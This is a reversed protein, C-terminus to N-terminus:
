HALEEMIDTSPSSGAPASGPGREIVPRTVGVSVPASEVQAPILGVVPEESALATALVEPVTTTTAEAAVPATVFEVASPEGVSTQVTDDEAGISPV